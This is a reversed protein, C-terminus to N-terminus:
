ATAQMYGHVPPLVSRPGGRALTLDTAGAEIRYTEPRVSSSKGLPIASFTAPLYSVLLSLDNAEFDLPIYRNQFDFAAARNEYHLIGQQVSVYGARLNFFTDLPFQGQKEPSAPIPSTPRAM